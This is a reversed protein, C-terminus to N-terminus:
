ARCQESEGGITYVIYVSEEGVMRGRACEAQADRVVDAAYAETCIGDAMSFLIGVNAEFSCRFFGELLLWRRTLFKDAIHCASGGRGLLSCMM